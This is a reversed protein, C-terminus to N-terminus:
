YAYQVSLFSALVSINSLPGDSYLHNVTVTNLINLYFKTYSVLNEFQRSDPFHFWSVGVIGTFHPNNTPNFHMEHVPCCTAHGKTAM